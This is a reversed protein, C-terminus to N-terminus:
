RTLLRDAVAADVAAVAGRGTAPALVVTCGEPVSAANVQEIEVIVATAPLKARLGEVVARSEDDRLRLHSFVVDAGAAAPCCGGTALPCQGKKVAEPGGCVVVDYGHRKLLKELAWREAGDPDEILVRAAGSRPPWERPPLEWRPSRDFMVGAHSRPVPGSLATPGMLLPCNLPLEAHKNWPVLARASSGQAADPASGTLSVPAAVNRQSDCKM